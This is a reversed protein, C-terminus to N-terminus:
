PGTISWTGLVTYGTKYVIADIYQTPGSVVGDRQLVSGAVLYYRVGTGARTAHLHSNNAPPPTLVNYWLRTAGSANDGGQSSASVDEM